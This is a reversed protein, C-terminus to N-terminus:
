FSQVVTFTGILVIDWVFFKIKAIRFVFIRLIHILFPHGM